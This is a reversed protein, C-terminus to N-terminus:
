DFGLVKSYLDLWQPNEKQILEDKWARRWRKLRKERLIAQEVDEFVEYYVLSKIKYKKTFGETLEHKHQYVRKVLDSTVGIYITGKPKNSLIYVYYQPM